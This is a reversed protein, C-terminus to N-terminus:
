EGRKLLLRIYPPVNRLEGGADVIGRLTEIGRADVTRLHSVDVAWPTRVRRLTTEFEAVGEEVLQGIIQIVTTGAVEFTDIRLLM